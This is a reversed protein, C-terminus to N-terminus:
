NHYIMVRLFQTCIASFETGLTGINEFFIKLEDFKAKISQINTSFISFKNKGSNFTMLM